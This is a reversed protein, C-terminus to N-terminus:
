VGLVNFFWASSETTEDQIRESDGAVILRRRPADSLHAVPLSLLCVCFTFYITQKNVGLVLKRFKMHLNDIDRFNYFVGCKRFICSGEFLWQRLCSHNPKLM